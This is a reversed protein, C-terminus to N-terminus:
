EALFNLARSFRGTFRMGGDMVVLCICTEDGIIEPKHDDDECNIALDGARYVREGDRMAGTLILTLEQGEHTHQPIGAGPRARLLSVKEGAFGEIDYEYVGPLRFKWPINDFPIGIAEAVPAPLSGNSAKGNAVKGNAHGNMTAAPEGELAAFIRDLADSAMEAPSEDALFSGAMTEMQSVAVRSDPSHTLHAAVLLSVGPSAAGSAYAALMDTTPM